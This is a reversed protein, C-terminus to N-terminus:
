SLPWPGEEYVLRGLFVGDVEELLEYAATGNLARITVHGRFWRIRRPRSALVARSFRAVWPWEIYRVVIHEGAVEYQVAPVEAPNVELDGIKV